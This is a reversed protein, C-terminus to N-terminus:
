FGGLTDEFRESEVEENEEERCINKLSMVYVGNNKEDEKGRKCEECDKCKADSVKTYDFNSKHEKVILLKKEVKDLNFVIYSLNMHEMMVLYKELSGKPFGIKCTEKGICALRLDLKENMIIADKGIAVYFNGSNILVIKDKNDSQLAEVMQKFNM